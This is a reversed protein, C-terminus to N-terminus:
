RCQLRTHHEHQAGSPSFLAGLTVNTTGKVSHRVKKDCTQVTLNVSPIASMDRELLLDVPFLNTSTHHKRRKELFHKREMQTPGLDDHERDWFQLDRGIFKAAVLEIVWPSLSSISSCHYEESQTLNRWTISSPTCARPSM